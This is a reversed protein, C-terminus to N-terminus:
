KLENYNRVIRVIMTYMYMNYVYIYVHRPRIKLKGTIRAPSPIKAFKYYALLNELDQLRQFNKGVAGSKKFVRFNLKFVLGDAELNGFIELGSKGSIGLRKVTLSCLKLRDGKSM